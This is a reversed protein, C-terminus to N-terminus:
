RGYPSRDEGGDGVVQTVSPCFDHVLFAWKPELAMPRVRLAYRTGSMFADTSPGPQFVRTEPAWEPWPVVRPPDGPKCAALLAYVTSMRTVFDYAAQTQMEPELQLRYEIRLLRSDDRRRFAGDRSQTYSPAPSLTPTVLVWGLNQEAENRLDPLQMKLLAFSRLATSYEQRSPNGPRLSFVAVGDTSFEPDQGRELSIICHSPDM